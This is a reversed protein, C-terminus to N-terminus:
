IPMRHQSGGCPYPFLDANRRNKMGPGAADPEISSRSFTRGRPHRRSREDDLDFERFPRRSLRFHRGFAVDDGFGQHVDQAPNLLSPRSRVCRAEGTTRTPLLRRRREDLRPRRCLFLWVGLQCGDPLRNRVAPLRISKASPLSAVAASKAAPPTGSLCISSDGGFM